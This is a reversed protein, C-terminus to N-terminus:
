SPRAIMSEEAHPVILIQSHLLMRCESNPCMLGLIMALGAGLQATWQYRSVEELDAKCHPCRPPLVNTKPQYKNPTSM